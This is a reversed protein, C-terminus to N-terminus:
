CSRIQSVSPVIRPRYDRPGMRNATRRCRARCSPRLLCIARQRLWWSGARSPRVLWRRGGGPPPPPAALPADLRQLVLVESRDGEKLTVERPQVASLSWGSRSESQRLRIVKQDIRDILIAIADGEWRLDLLQTEVMESTTTSLENRRALVRPLPQCLRVILKM